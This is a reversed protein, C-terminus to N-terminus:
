HNSLLSQSANQRNQIIGDLPDRVELPFGQFGHALGHQLLDPLLDGASADVIRLPTNGFPLFHAIPAFAAIHGDGRRRIFRDLHGTPPFLWM